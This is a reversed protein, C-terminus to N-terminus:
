HDPFLLFSFVTIFVMFSLYNIVCENSVLVTNNGTGVTQAVHANQVKEEDKKM